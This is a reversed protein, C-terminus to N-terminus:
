HAKSCVAVVDLSSDLSRYSLSFDRRTIEEALPDITRRSRKLIASYAWQRLWRPAHLRLRVPDLRLLRDLRVHEAEHFRLYRESGFIGCVEVREFYTHCLDEMEAPDFEQYHWPDIVEDARAFTLRNPTVWVAVGGPKLVRAAEAMVRGPDPVHEVSQVSVVSSVASDRLPISRMDAVIVPRSQDALASIEIDLGYCRTVGLLRYSHGIGCGLDLVTGDILFPACLAYAAVHRQFTPNFGGESTTVREGTLRM